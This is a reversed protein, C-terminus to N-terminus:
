LPCAYSRIELITERDTIVTHILSKGFLRVQQDLGYVSGYDRENSCNLPRVSTLRQSGSPLLQHQAPPRPLPQQSVSRVEVNLGYGKVNIALAALAVLLTVPLDVVRRAEEAVRDDGRDDAVRDLLAVEAVGVTLTRVTVALAPPVDNLEIVAELEAVAAGLAPPSEIIPTLTPTGTAITATKNAM